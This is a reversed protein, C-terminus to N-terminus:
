KCACWRIMKCPSKRGNIYFGSKDERFTVPFDPKSDELKHLLILSVEDHAPPGTSELVTRLLSRDGPAGVGAIVMAPNVDVDPGTDVCLTSLTAQSGSPPGVVIAEVRGAPPVLVHNAKQISRHPDHYSPPM